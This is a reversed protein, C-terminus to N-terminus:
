TKKMIFGSGIGGIRMGEDVVFWRKGNIKQITGEYIIHDKKFFLVAKDGINLKNGFSDYRPIRHTNLSM